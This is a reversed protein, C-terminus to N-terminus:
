PSTVQSELTQRAHQRHQPRIHGALTRMAAVLVAADDTYGLGVIVDPILDTPVVFYALAAFLTMRVRAPTVPDTAAYYATLLDEAFPLRGVARRFKPWFHEEV